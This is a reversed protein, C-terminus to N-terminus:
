DNKQYINKILVSRNEMIFFYIEKIFGTLQEKSVIAYMGGSNTKTEFSISDLKCEAEFEGILMSFLPNYRNYDIYVNVSDKNEACKIRLNIGNFTYISYDDKEEVNYMANEM